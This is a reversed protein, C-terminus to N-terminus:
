NPHLCNIKKSGEFGILGMIFMLMEGYLFAFSKCLM